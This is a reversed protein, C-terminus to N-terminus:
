NMLETKLILKYDELNETGMAQNCVHCIPRLNSFITPGMCFRSVVHGCVFTDYDVEGKCAFCEGKLDSASSYVEWVKRRVLKSIKKPCAELPFHEMKQFPVKSQMHYVVRTVWEFKRYLGLLCPANKEKKYALAIQAEVKTRFHPVISEQYSACYYANLEVMSNIFPKPDYGCKEAVRHTRLYQSLRDVNFHPARPNQSSRLFKAYHDRCHQEVPKVFSAWDKLPGTTHAKNQNLAEYKEELEEMTEVKIIQATIEVRYGDKHLRRICELRHQGDVVYKTSALEAVVIPPVFFFEGHKQRQAKQFDYLDAVHEVDILRQCSPVKFASDIEHSSFQVFLPIQPVPSSFPKTRFINWM